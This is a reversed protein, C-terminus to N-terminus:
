DVFSRPDTLIPTVLDVWRLFLDSGLGPYHDRPCFGWRPTIKSMLRYAPKRNRMTLRKRRLGGALLTKLAAAENVSGDCYRQLDGLWRQFKRWQGEGQPLDGFELIEWPEFTLSSLKPLWVDYKWNGNEDPLFPPIPLMFGGTEMEDPPIVTEHTVINRLLSLTGKLPIDHKASWVALRNFASYLDQDSTYNKLYVGRVDQGNVYDHGCSERFDGTVFSKQLNVKLGLEKLVQSLLYFANPTVVIDDGFVGWNKERGVYTPIGLTDYVGLVLSSLLLTQLPFTFGDGMTSVMRIPIVSKDPLRVKNTRLIKIWRVVSPPFLYELLAISIYDSCQTLDMTAYSGDLSGIRAMEANLEPQKDLQIGIRGLVQEMVGGLGLQFYTNLSPETVVIRKSGYSKPVFTLNGCEVVTAPGHRAKRAMEAAECVPNWAVSREYWDIIFPSTATIRSDGVKFYFLSPKDGLGVSRGPGFRSAQEISAMTVVDVDAAPHFWEYLLQKATSISYGVAPSGDWAEFVEPVLAGCFDNAQHFAELTRREADSDCEVESKKFISTLLAYKAFEDTSLDTPIGDPFPNFRSGSCVISLDRQLADFLVVSTFSSNDMEGVEHLDLTFIGQFADSSAM